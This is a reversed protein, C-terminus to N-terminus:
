SSERNKHPVIRLSQIKIDPNLSLTTISHMTRPANEQDSMKGSLLDVSTDCRDSHDSIQNQLDFDTNGFLIPNQLRSSDSSTLAFQLSDLTQSIEEMFNELRVRLDSLEEMKRRIDEYVRAEMQRVRERAQNEVRRAQTQANLLVDAIIHEKEEFANLREQLEMVRNEYKKCERRLITLELESQLSDVKQQLEDQLTEMHKHKSGLLSGTSRNKM